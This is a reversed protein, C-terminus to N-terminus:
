CFYVVTGSECLRRALGFWTPHGAIELKENSRQEGVLTTGLSGPLRGVKELWPGEFGDEGCVLHEYRRRDAGTAQLVALLALPPARPDFQM